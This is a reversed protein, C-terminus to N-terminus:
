STMMISVVCCGWGGRAQGLKIYLISVISVVLLVGYSAWSPLSPLSWNLHTGLWHSIDNCQSPAYRSQDRCLVPHRKLAWSRNTSVQTLGDYNKQCSLVITWLMVTFKRWFIWLLCGMPHRKQSSLIFYTAGLDCCLQICYISSNACSLCLEM